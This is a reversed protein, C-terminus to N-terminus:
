GSATACCGSRARAPPRARLLHPRRALCCAWVIAILALLSIQGQGAVLGGVIVATEGPAVFGLFAGTELFALVGVALYTWTGLAKGADELLQEFNPLQIVGVGILVRPRRDRGARRDPVLAEAQPPPRDALGRAGGRGRALHVEHRRRRAPLRRRALRALAEPDDSIGFVTPGSGTVMPHAVGAERLAELAPDIAPCLARPPGRPRQRARGRRRPHARGRDRELEEATRPTGLADFARYVEGASLEADLPVVILPPAEGPLPEVHEGAGTM